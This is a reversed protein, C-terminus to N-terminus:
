PIVIAGLMALHSRPLRLNKGREEHEATRPSSQSRYIKKQEKEKEQATDDPNEPGQKSSGGRHWPSL